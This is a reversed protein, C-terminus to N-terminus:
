SLKVHKSRSQWKSYALSAIRGGSVRKPRVSVGTTRVTIKPNIWLRSPGSSWPSCIPCGLRLDRRPETIELLFASRRSVLSNHGLPHSWIDLCGPPSRPRRPGSSLGDARAPASRRRRTRRTPSAASRKGIRRSDSRACGGPRRRSCSDRRTQTRANRHPCLEVGKVGDVRRRRACTPKLQKQM